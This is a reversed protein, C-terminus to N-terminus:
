DEGEEAYAADEIAEMDDDSLGFHHGIEHILVHEILSELDDEGTMWMRLIPRRYLFVMDPEASADFLSKATLDVGQYLGLLDMPDGIGLEGLVEREAFDAVRIMVDASMSKFPEPLQAYAAMTMERFEDLDPKV